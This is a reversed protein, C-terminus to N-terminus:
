QIQEPTFEWHELTNDSQLILLTVFRMHITPTLFQSVSFQNKCNAVCFTDFFSSKHPSSKKGNSIKM